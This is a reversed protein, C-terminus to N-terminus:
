KVLITNLVSEIVTSKYEKKQKKNKFPKNKILFAGASSVAIWLLINNPDLDTRIQGQAQFEKLIEIFKSTEIVGSGELSESNEELLQYNIMRAIDPNKDYLDFRQKILTTIFEEANTYELLVEFDSITESFSAKVLKWLNEKTKFHHLILSKNVEAIKAIGSLSTGSFGHLPFLERAAKIIANRTKDGVTRQKLETM